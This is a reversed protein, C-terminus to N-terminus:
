LHGGRWGRRLGGQFSAPAPYLRHANDAGLGDGRHPYLRLTPDIGAALAIGVGVWLWNVAPDGPDVGPLSVDQTDAAPTSKNMLFTQARLGADDWGDLWTMWPAQVEPPYGTVASPYWSRHWFGIYRGEAPSPLTLSNGWPRELVATPIYSVGAYFVLSGYSRANSDSEREMWYSLPEHRDTVYGAFFAWSRNATTTLSHPDVFSGRAMETLRPDNSGLMDPTGDTALFLLMLDGDHAQENTLDFGALGGGPVLLYADGNPNPYVM